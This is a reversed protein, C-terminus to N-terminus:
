ILLEKIYENNTYLSLKKDFDLYYLKIGAEKLLFMGPMIDWLKNSAIILADTKKSLLNTFSVCCSNIHLLNSVLIKDDKVLKHFLVQKKDLQKYLTGGFEVIAQNLPVEPRNVIKNNNIYVGQNEAAYYFEDMIPLYIISFKTADKDYFALQIGWFPSNKVFHSTGDIPDIIWTRNKLIGNPNNEETLFNDDPFKSKIQAILFNEIGIDVETVLTNNEKTSIHYSTISKSIYYADKVLNIAFDLEQKYDFRKNRTTSIFEELDEKYPMGTQATKVQLKMASAYM